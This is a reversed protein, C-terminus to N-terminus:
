NDRIMKDIKTELWEMHRKTLIRNQNLLFYKDKESLENSDLIKEWSRRQMEIVENLIKGQTLPNIIDMMVGKITNWREIVFNDYKPKIESYVKKGENTISYIKLKRKGKSKVKIWGKNVMKKILPYISGSGPRWAGKTLLTIEKILDYGSCDKEILRQLVFVPLVGARGSFSFSDEM